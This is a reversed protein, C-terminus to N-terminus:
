RGAVFRRARNGKSAGDYGFDGVGRPQGRSRLCWVPQPRGPLLLAPFTGSLRGSAMARRRAGDGVGCYGTSPKGGFNRRLPGGRLDFENGWPFVDTSQGRAARMWEAETPLRGGIWGCYASAEPVSVCPQPLEEDATVLEGC